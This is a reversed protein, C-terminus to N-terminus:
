GWSCGSSSSRGGGGVGGDTCGQGVTGSGGTRVGDGVAGGDILFALFLRHLSSSSRSLSGSELEVSNNEGRDGEGGSRGEDGRGLGDVGVCCCWCEGEDGGENGSGPNVAAEGSEATGADGPGGSGVGSESVISPGTAPGCSSGLEGAGSMGTM